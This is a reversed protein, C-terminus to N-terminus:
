RKLHFTKKQGTITKGNLFDLLFSEVSEAFSEALEKESGKPLIFLEVENTEERDSNQAFIAWRSDGTKANMVVKRVSTKLDEKNIPTLKKKKRKNSWRNIVGEKRDIEYWVTNIACLTLFMALGMSIGFWLLFNQLNIESLLFMLLGLAGFIGFIIKPLFKVTANYKTSDEPVIVDDSIHVFSLEKKETDSESM